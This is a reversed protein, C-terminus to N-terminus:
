WFLMDTEEEEVQELQVLCLMHLEHRSLFEWLEELKWGFEADWYDWVKRGEIAQPPPIQAVTKLPQDSIWNDM